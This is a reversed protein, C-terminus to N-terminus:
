ITLLRPNCAQVALLTFWHWGIPFSPKTFSKIGNTLPATM